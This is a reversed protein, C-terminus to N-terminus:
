RGLTRKQYTDVDIKILLPTNIAKVLAVDVTKKDRGNKKAWYSSQVYKRTFIEGDPKASVWKLFSATKPDDAYNLLLLDVSDSTAAVENTPTPESINLKTSPQNEQIKFVMGRDRIHYGVILSLLIVIATMFDPHQSM